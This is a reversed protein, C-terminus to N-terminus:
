HQEPAQAVAMQAIRRREAISELKAQHAELFRHLSKGICRAKARHAMMQETRPVYRNQRCVPLSYVSMAVRTEYDDILKGEDTSQYHWTAGFIQLYTPEIKGKSPSIPWWPWWWAGPTIRWYEQWLRTTGTLGPLWGNPLNEKNPRGDFPTNHM